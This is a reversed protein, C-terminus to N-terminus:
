NEMQKGLFSAVTQALTFEIDSCAGGGNQCIFLVCGMVDGESVVPAAVSVCFKEEGDSVPICSGGNFRYSSRGEMIHELGASIRKDMLERKAGGSIAIVTDRDCVAAIADTSKHLSDCIQAAFDSLEGIPSYKKFIVKGDKDTYIELPDGNSFGNVAFDSNKPENECEILLKLEKSPHNTSLQIVTASEDIEDTKCVGSCLLKQVDSKLAVEISDSYVTIREVVFTLDKHSLHEAALIRDFVEIVTRATNTIQKLTQKADICLRLQNKTSEIQSTLDAELSDYTEEIVERNEPHRVCDRLKQSKVAKLEATLNGLQEELSDSATPVQTLRKEEDLIAKQLHEIMGDANDRVQRIAHKVAADLCAIKTYHANCGKLGRRHYSGCVYTGPLDPRSLSFMPAGCDGCRLLGSYPNIYKRGGNYNQEKRDHRIQRTLAFTQMDVIPTHHNEFVIQDLEDLKVDKGNIKKRTHKRQRLTGIYFDNDLIGQVSVISWATKAERKVDEGRSQRYANERMRPTPIGEDTLWNSIRKYGWGDNYLEFIKRVVEAAPEDVEFAGSKGSLLRYGYPVACIWKGDKQRRNIVSKVKKSTDTVPMENMFFYIQIRMWDENTPYDINDGISIIRIGADRLTELEVLGYSNRRSFRSLDKVILIDYQNKMMLKRMKQYDERQEFTYGSRDRDVYLDLSSGPFKQRVFEEIIAKQNEISTNDRGEELDVSIRTYGCISYTEQM